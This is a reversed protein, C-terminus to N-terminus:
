SEWTPANCPWLLVTSRSARPPFLPVLTHVPPNEMKWVGTAAISQLRCGAVTDQDWGAGLGGGHEGPLWFGIDDFEGLLALFDRGCFPNPPLSYVAVTVGADGGNQDSALTTQAQVGHMIFMQM